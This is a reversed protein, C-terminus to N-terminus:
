EYTLSSPMLLSRPDCLEISKDLFRRPSQSGFIHNPQVSRQCVSLADGSLNVCPYHLSLTLFLRSRTSGSLTTKSLSGDPQPEKLYGDIADRYSGRIALYSHCIDFQGVLPSDKQICNFKTSLCLPSDFFGETYSGFGTMRYPTSRHLLFGCDHCQKCQKSHGDYQSTARARMTMTWVNRTRM